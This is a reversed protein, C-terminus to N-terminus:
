LFKMVAAQTTGSRRCNTRGGGAIVVAEPVTPKEAKVANCLLERATKLALRRAAEVSPLEIGEEDQILNAGDKVHFYFHGM